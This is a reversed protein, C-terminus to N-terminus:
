QTCFANNQYDSVSTIKYINGMLEFNITQPVLIWPTETTLLSSTEDYFKSQWYECSDVAIISSGVMRVNPYYSRNLDIALLAYIKQNILDNIEGQMKQLEEGDYFPKLYSDDRFYYASIEANDAGVIADILAQRVDASIEPIQPLSQDIQGPSITPFDPTLQNSLPPISTETQIETPIETPVETSIETPGDTPIETPSAKMMGVIFILSTICLIVGLGIGGIVGGTLLWKRSLSKKDPQKPQQPPSQTGQGVPPTEIRTNTEPTKAEPQLPTSHLMAHITTSLKLIHPGMPPTMADLWQRRGLYLEFSEKPEIAEIRFPVIILGKSFGREVEGKVYQSQFVNSSFIVVMVQASNIAEIIADDYQQAPQIDRPAIWCRIGKKELGECVTDAVTKDESAYSIFVEHAM